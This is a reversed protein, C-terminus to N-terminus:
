RGLLALIALRPALGCEWWGEGPPKYLMQVVWVQYWGLFLDLPIVSSVSCVGQKQYEERLAQIDIRNISHETKMM